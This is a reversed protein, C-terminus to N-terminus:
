KIEGRNFLNETPKKTIDQKREQDVYETLAGPNMLVSPVMRLRPQESTLENRHEMDRLGARLWNPYQDEKNQHVLYASILHPLGEEAETCDRIRTERHPLTLSSEWIRFLPATEIRNDRYASSKDHVSEYALTYSHGQENTTFHHELLEAEGGAIRELLEIRFDTARTSEIRQYDRGIFFRTEDRSQETYFALPVHRKMSELISSDLNIISRGLLVHRMDELPIHTETQYNEM